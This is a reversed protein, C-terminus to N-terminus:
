AQRYPDWMALTALEFKVVGVDAGLRVMAENMTAESSMAVVTAPLPVNSALLTELVAKGTTPPMFHDLLLVDPAFAEIRTVADLSNWRQELVLLSTNIGGATLLAEIDYGDEFALVRM